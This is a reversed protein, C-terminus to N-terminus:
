INSIIRAKITEFESDNILNRDLMDKAKQLQETPDGVNSTQHQPLNTGAVSAGIQIGGSRSRLEELERLRRKERWAQEQAQCIRYIAQTEDKRLGRFIVTQIRGNSAFDSSELAQVTLEAGFAGARVRADKVDQWRVDHPTFGGFLGRSVGILRGSTAFLLCRRHSLAFLRRQVAYALLTENPVLLSFLYALAKSVRPEEAVPIAKLEQQKQPQATAPPSVNLRPTAPSNSQPTPVKSSGKCNPCNITKGCSEPRVRLSKQCHPCNFRFDSM